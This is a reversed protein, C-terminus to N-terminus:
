FYISLSNDVSEMMEYLSDGLIEKQIEKSKLEYKLWFYGHGQFGKYQFDFPRSKIQILFTIVAFFFYTCMVRKSNLLFKSRLLRKVISVILSFISISIIILFLDYNNWWWIDGTGGWYNDSPFLFAVGGWVFEPTPMDELLHAMFGFFFGVPITWYNRFVGKLSIAKFRKVVLVILSTLILDMPLSHMLAHHSYWYKKHYITSGPETLGFIPAITSDFGSWYSIVDIDPLFGGLTSIFVTLVKSRISGKNYHVLVSGVAMGSFTHSLIDM